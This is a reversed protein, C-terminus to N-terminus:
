KPPPTFNPQPVYYPQAPPPPRLGGGAVFASALAMRQQDKAMMCQMFADTGPNAGYAICEARDQDLVQQRTPGM